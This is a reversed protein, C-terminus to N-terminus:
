DNSNSEMKENFWKTIVTQREPNNSASSLDIGNKEAFDILEPKNGGIAFQYEKELESVSDNETSKGANETEDKDDTGADKTEAKATAPSPKKAPESKKTPDHVIVLKAFGQFVFSKKIKDFGRPHFQQVNVNVDNKPQGPRDNIRILAVHYHKQDNANITEPIRQIQEPDMANVEKVAQTYNNSNIKSM